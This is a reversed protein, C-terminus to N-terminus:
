TSRKFNKWMASPVPRPKEQWGEASGYKAGAKNAYSRRVEGEVTHFTLQGIKMNAYVRVPVVVVIEMTWHGSYGVDGRGATVHTFIGLRGVSSKGDLYPVHMWTETYERTVGLYLQGPYLVLGEDEPIEATWTPEDAQCDLPRDAFSGAVQRRYVLLTSALRVDYSNGGLCDSDFPQIKIHGANMAALIANDSLISM